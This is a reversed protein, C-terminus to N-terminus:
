KSDDKRNIRKRQNKIFESVDQTSDSYINTKTASTQKSSKSPMFMELVEAFNKAKSTKAAKDASINMASILEKDDIESILNIGSDSVGLVYCNELLTVVQVSKGPGLNLHAVKRLYEDENGGKGGNISKKFFNMLFYIIVIVLALVLIMKLIPEWTNSKSTRASENGATTNLSYKKEAEASSSGEIKTSEDVKNSSTQSFVLNSISGIFILVVLLKKFKM